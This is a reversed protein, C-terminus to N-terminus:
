FRRLDERGIRGDHFASGVLVASAGHDRWRRVEDIGAIGGGVAVEVDRRADHITAFLEGTGTGRGTGVRSLELLLLRRVGLDIAQFAIHAPLSTGWDANEPLRAVDEYLDLSLVIRDSGFRDLIAELAEPGRLTELGVVFVTGGLDSFPDLDAADGIGPDIWLDLGEACLAAYLNLEPGKGAIADLDALYLDRLGLADRYARAIAIPEPSPHLKSALPRYHSRIGGVAHVALRDKVDLVPIVRFATGPMPEDM